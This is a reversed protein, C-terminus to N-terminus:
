PVLTQLYLFIRYIQVAISRQHWLETPLAFSQFDKHGHNSEVHCWTFGGSIRLNKSKFSKVFEQKGQKKVSSTAPALGTNNM